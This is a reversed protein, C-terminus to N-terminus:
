LELPSPRLTGTLFPFSVNGNRVIVISMVTADVVALVIVVAACAATVRWSVPVGTDALVEM